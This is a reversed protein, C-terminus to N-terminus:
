LGTTDWLLRYRMYVRVFGGLYPAFGFKVVKSSPLFQLGFKELGDSRHYFRPPVKKGFFFGRLVRNQDSIILVSGLYGSVEKFVFKVAGFRVAYSGAKYWQMKKRLTPKKKNKRVVVGEPTYYFIQTKPIFDSAMTTKKEGAVQGKKPAVFPM